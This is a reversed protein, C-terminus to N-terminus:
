PRTQPPLGMFAGKKLSALLYWLFADMLEKAAPDSKPHPNGEQKEGAFVCSNAVEYMEKGREREGEGRGRRGTEQTRWYQFKSTCTHM